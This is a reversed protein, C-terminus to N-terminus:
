LDASHQPHQLNRDVDDGQGAALYQSGHEHQPTSHTGDGSQLPEPLELVDAACACGCNWEGDVSGVCFMVWCVASRAGDVGAPSPLVVFWAATVSVLLSFCRVRQNRDKV